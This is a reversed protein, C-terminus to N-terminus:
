RIMTLKSIIRADLARTEAFYVGSAADGGDEHRGDWVLDHHGAPWEGSALTRVLEGKVNYIRLSVEGAHPLSLSFTTRPNFPNPYNRVVVADAPRSVSVPPSGGWNDFYGLVDDLIIARASIGELGEPPSWGVANRVVALDYPMMVVDANQTPHHHHLAAAYPFAGINGMSDTFEALRVTAGSPVVADFQGYRLCGGYTIWAEVRDLIGNGALQAVTPATQNGILDSVDEQVLDVPLYTSVFNAGDPGAALLGSVFDDGTFFANKGGQALWGSVVSIDESPDGDFDGNALLNSSLDGSSYVLTTYSSLQDSAARGGLGNGVGSTPGNTAYLDYDVGPQFGLQQLAMLWENDDDNGISDNWFLVPPQDGDADTITPLGRVICDVPYCLDHTFSAFGSTDAPLLAIGMDGDLYDRAEVYWKLIDGPYFFHEDPLDVTWRGQIWIPPNQNTFCSDAAVWGEILSWGDPFFDTVRTFEAPLATRFEDFMPNARMRVHFRPPEHLAMNPTRPSCADFWMSDGPVNALDQSRAINMAADLRISNAGLDVLDLDGSAPFSDQLWDISRGSVAPGQHPWALLAVNDLYPAPTGDSGVWGWQYGWEWCRMMVQVQVRDPVMLDTVIESFRAYEPGGAQVGSDRNRFTMDGIPENLPDATSRVGWALGIGPWQTYSGLEEHRYNEFRLEVGDCGEPWDYVPSEVRNDLHHDPGMLGGSNNVIYGDPGYCWSYCHSGGTGPVVLGDDIFAVQPSFNNRCQDLDHLGTWIRAFDGVGPPVGASWPGPDQDDFDEYSVQTGNVTIALEDVWAAGESQFLGDEDSFAGDSIFRIRLNIEDHTEGTYDGPAIMFIEDITEESRGDYSVLSEWQGGRNVELHLADYVLEIDTRLIGTWHVNSVASPNAASHTFELWQDWNNGYGPGDDFLTGCWMSTPGALPQHGTVQWYFIPDYTPDHHTWGHWNPQGDPDEFRGDWRDPGGIIYVTDVTSRSMGILGGHQTIDHHHSVQGPLDAAHAPMALLFLGLLVITGQRTPGLM